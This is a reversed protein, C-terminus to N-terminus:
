EGSNWFLVAGALLIGIVVFRLRWLIFLRYRWTGIKHRWQRVKDTNQRDYANAARWGM